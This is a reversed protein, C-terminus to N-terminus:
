YFRIGTHSRETVSPYVTCTFVCGSYMTLFINNMKFLLIFLYIGTSTITRWRTRSHSSNGIHSTKRSSSRPQSPCLTSAKPSHDEAPQYGVEYDDLHPPLNTRRRPRDMTETDSIASKWQM